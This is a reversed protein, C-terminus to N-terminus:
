DNIMPVNSNTRDDNFVPMAVNPGNKGIGQLMKKCFKHQLFQPKAM